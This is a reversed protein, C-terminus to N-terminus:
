RKKFEAHEVYDTCWTEDFDPSLPSFYPLKFIKLIAAAAMKFFPPVCGTKHKKSEAHKL